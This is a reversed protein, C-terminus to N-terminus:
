HGLPLISYGITFSLTRNKIEHKYYDPNQTGSTEPDDFVNGFGVSYHLDFELLSRKKLPLTYTAGFLWGADTGKIIRTIDDYVYTKQLTYGSSTRYNNYSTGVTRSDLKFALWPGSRVFIRQERGIPFGALFPIVAYDTQVKTEVYYVPDSNQILRYYSNSSDRIGYGKREFTTGTIFDMGRGLPINVSFGLAQGAIPYYKGYITPQPIWSVSVGAKYTVTVGASTDTQQYIGTNERKRGGFGFNVGAMFEAAGNRYNYDNIFQKRGNIYNVNFGVKIKESVPYSIGASFIYGFDKKVPNMDSYYEWDMEWNNNLFSYYIGAKLYLDPVSPVKLSLMLPLRFYSLGITRTNNFYVPAIYQQYPYFIPVPYYYTKYEYYVASYSLGTEFGVLRNFSYGISFGESPGPKHSWKGNLDQGHIDSINLGSYFGATFRQSFVSTNGCILLLILIIRFLFRMLDTILSIKNLDVIMGIVSM